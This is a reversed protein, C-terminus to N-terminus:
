LGKKGPDDDLKIINVILFFRFCGQFYISRLM